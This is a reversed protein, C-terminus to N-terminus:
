ARQPELLGWSPPLIAMRELQRRERVEVVEAADRESLLKRLLRQNLAHGSRVSTFHGIVPMGCLALDGVIDLIKHRVFEDSYRLGDPNLINFDDVVIANELSGGQALGM